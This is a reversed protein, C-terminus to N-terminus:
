AEATFDRGTVHETCVCVTSDPGTAAGSNEEGVGADVERELTGVVRVVEVEFGRGMDWEVDRVSM